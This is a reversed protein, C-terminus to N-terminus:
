QCISSAVSPHRLQHLTESHVDFSLLLGLVIDFLILETTLELQVTERPLDGSLNRVFLSLDYVLSVPKVM